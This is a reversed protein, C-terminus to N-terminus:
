CDRSKKWKEYMHRTDIWLMETTSDVPPMGREETKKNVKRKTGRYDWVWWAFAVMGRMPKTEFFEENCSFRQSFVYVRSPPYETFM